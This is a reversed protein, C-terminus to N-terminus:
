SGFAMGVFFFAFFSHSVEAVLTESRRIEEKEGETMEEKLTVKLPTGSYVTDMM